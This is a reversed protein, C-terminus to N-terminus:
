ELQLVGGGESSQVGRCLRQHQHYPDHVSQVAVEITAAQSALAKQAATPSLDWREM